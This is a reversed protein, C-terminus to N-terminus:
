RGRDDTFMTQVKFHWTAWIVDAEEPDDVFDVQELTLFRKLLALDLASTTLVLQAEAASTQKKKGTYVKCRGKVALKKLFRNEQDLSEEQAVLEEGSRIDGRALPHALEAPAEIVFSVGAYVEPFLISGKLAKLKPDTTGTPSFHPFTQSCAEFVDSRVCRLVQTGSFFDRTVRDGYETPGLPWLLSFSM